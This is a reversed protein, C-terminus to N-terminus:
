YKLNKRRYGRQNSYNRGFRMPSKQVEWDPLSRLIDNIERSNIPKLDAAKKGLLECWVELICVRDKKYTLKIENFEEIDRNAIFDVRERVTLEDWNAPYMADLYGMILGHLPTDEKHELQKQESIEYAEGTLYISEGSTFKAYSEAWIQDVEDDTLDIWIDKKPENVYCDIPYTRRDGTPDRLFQSDNTTGWFVCQRPFRSTNKAYAVRYIDYQRSLFAKVLDIDSKRTANLEGIEIHWVGQILEAAEKGKMTALNDSFWGKSLKDIFTSKGMGQPGTLTPMNDYKIGPVFIRAVAAVLHIRAVERTYISDEAGLYDIFLTEVRKKGDWKLSKLYDRVPHYKNRDFVLNKADEIKYATTLGYHKELFLRVGSDDMDSWDHSKLDTWPVDDGVTARNSFVDYVLKGKVKPDNELILIANQITNELNGKKDYELRLVWDENSNEENSNEEKPAFEFDEEIEKQKDLYLQRKIEKDESVFELMKIYSPYKTTPTNEKLDADLNSFLHIRVLDFANCLMGSAPDTGHHSYAFKDDYVVLGNSTSGKVYTYRDAIKSPIYKENLYKEIVDSIAYKRCFTGVLGKKELPDEQKKLLRDIIKSKRSSHPWMSTDKWDLYTEKIDEVSLLSGQQYRFVFEIDSPCSAWYMLREAEYTTDDFMDIGIDDAVKRAVAGYEDVNMTKDTPIILRIRPKEETHSHTSYICLECDYFMTITDWLEDVSCNVSDLDLTILSRVLLNEKKRRGNKLSGGVFGGVDKIKDREDKKMSKFELANEKTIVPKQLKDLFESWLIETNKWHTSNRSQGIAINLLVDNQVKM